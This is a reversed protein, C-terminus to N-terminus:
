REREAAHFCRTNCFIYGTYIHLCRLKYSREGTKSVFAPSFSQFSLRSLCLTLSVSINQYNAYLLKPNKPMTFYNMQRQIPSWSELSTLQRLLFRFVSYPYLGDNFIFLYSTITLAQTHKSVRIVLITGM